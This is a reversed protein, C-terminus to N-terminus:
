AKMGLCLNTLIGMQHELGRLWLPHFQQEFREWEPPEYGGSYIFQIDLLWILIPHM